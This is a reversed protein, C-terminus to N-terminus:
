FNQQVVSNSAIEAMKQDSDPQALICTVKGCTVMIKYLYAFLM